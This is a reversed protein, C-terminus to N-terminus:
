VAASAAIPLSLRIRTGAEPQEISLRAADGYIAKLRGRVNALGSGSGATDTAVGFGLGTDEVVINLRGDQVVASVTIRGGEIKPELGHKIANEVLPQLLMPSLPLARTADDAAVEYWLREGMRLRLIELYDAIIALEDGVTANERRSADLTHRLYGILRETMYKATAPEREILSVVNSLTNYLFHPEVQARLAKLEATTREREARDVNAQLEARERREVENKRTAEIAEWLLWGIAITVCSAFVFGRWNESVNLWLTGTLLSVALVYGVYIAAIPLAVGLMMPHMLLPALRQRRRALTITIKYLYHQTYGILLSFTAVEALMKWTIRHGMGLSFLVIVAIVIACLIATFLLNRLVSPRWRRFFPIVQLPHYDTGPKLRAEIKPDM